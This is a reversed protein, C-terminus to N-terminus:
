TKESSPESARQIIRVEPVREGIAVKEDSSPTFNGIWKSALWTTALECTCSYKNCMSHENLTKKRLM